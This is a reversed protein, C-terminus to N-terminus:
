CRDSERIYTASSTLFGRASQRLQEKYEKLKDVELTRAGITDQRYITVFIGYDRLLRQCKVEGLLLLKAEASKLEKYGDYIASELKTLEARLTESMPETPPTFALWNVVKEWYSLAFQDFRAVQEAVIELLDRKRQAREKEVTKDHSAKALWYTALGSIIAGLGIKVASDVVDIPTIM